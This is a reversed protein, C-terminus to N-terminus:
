RSIEAWQVGRSAVYIMKYFDAAARAGAATVKV